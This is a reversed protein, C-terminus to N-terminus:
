SRKAPATSFVMSTVVPIPPPSKRGSSLGGAVGSTWGRGPAPSSPSGSEGGAGTAMTLSAKVLFNKGLPLAIPRRKLWPAYLNLPSDYADHLIGTIEVDARVDLRHDVKWRPSQAGIEHSETNTRAARRFKRTLATRPSIFWTSAAIGTSPVANAVVTLIVLFLREMDISGHALRM